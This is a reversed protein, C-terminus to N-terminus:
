SSAGSTSRLSFISRSPGHFTVLGAKVHVATILATADSYGLLVKPNERIMDYDILPLLRPSGWGGRAFIMRISPERFFANIDSARAEDAGAFYGHREFYHDGLVVEFGLSELADVWIRTPETEWAATAPSVLGVKDGPRVRPPKVLAPGASNVAPALGIAGVASIFQRRNIM